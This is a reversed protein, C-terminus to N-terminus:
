PREVAVWVTATPKDPKSPDPPRKVGSDEVLEEIVLDRRRPRATNDKLGLADRIEHDTAGDTGCKLIYRYVQAKLSKAMPEIYEAAARSTESGSHPPLPETLPEPLFTTQHDPM